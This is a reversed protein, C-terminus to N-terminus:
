DSVAESNSLEEAASGMLPLTQFARSVCGDSSCYFMFCDVFDGSGPDILHSPYM